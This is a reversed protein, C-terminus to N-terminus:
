APALLDAVSVTVAGAGVAGAASKDSVKFGLVTTPPDIETPVTISSLTVDLGTTTFSVLLLGAFATTGAFMVTGAPALEASNLIVVVVVLLFILAPMLADYPPTVLLAVSVITLLYLELGTRLFAVSAIDLRRPKKQQRSRARVPTGHM